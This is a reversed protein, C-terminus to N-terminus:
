SATPPQKTSQQSRRLFDVMKLFLQPHVLPLAVPYERHAALLTAQSELYARHAYFLLNQSYWWEVDGRNWLARRLCDIPLYDHQAFRKAWYDPWQENVHHTGGQYPVAASFLVIPALQVLSAVFGDASQAPLHEAVEVSMALDFRHPVRFPNALDGAAFRDVPIELRQRDVYDGDIGFIETVGHERFTALWVGQGCGIDIVSRPRVWQLVLPVVASASRKAGDRIEQFFQNPYNTPM